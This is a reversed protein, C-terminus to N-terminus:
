DVYCSHYFLIFPRRTTWTLRTVPVRTPSHHTSGNMLLSWLQFNQPLVFNLLACLEPLNNQLPTGTLILHYRPYPPIKIIYEYTTLLVQFQGMCLDGWAQLAWRQAPNGKYAIMHVSPAWKAFEGVL